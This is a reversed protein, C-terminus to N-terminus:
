ERDHGTLQFEFLDCAAAVSRVTFLFEDRTLGATPVWSEGVLRGRDDARFGVLSSARNREWAMLVVNELKEVIARRAVVSRLEIVGDGTRVGVRQVRGNSFRVTLGDNNPAIDPAGVCLARWEIMAAWGKKASIMPSYM